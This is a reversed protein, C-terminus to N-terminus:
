NLFDLLALELPLQPIPSHKIENRASSFLSILRILQQNEIQMALKASEENPAEGFSALTAPSVKHILLKRLYELFEKTFHDLDVGSSYIKQIFNLAMAKDKSIIHDAFQFHFRSPILGLTGYVDDAGIEGSHSTRIKTLFVEGDRLAGDSANAIIMLAEDTINIKEAKSVQRLKTFIEKPTLKKLDFRQVRSLVTPLIKHPETTALIFVIHSPPEELIKLLANFADKTLMHVEDIIFVKYNGGPAAVLASEKLNRIEEIGRNSAADIEILDLSNNNNVALCPQCKNCPEWGSKDRETCNLSKAFIRALTTKGTGRPGTFLYAHGVRGTILGGKLTKVVHEQGIVQDFSQPRYKRYLM